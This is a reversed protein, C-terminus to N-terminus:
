EPTEPTQVRSSSPSTSLSEPRHSSSSPAPVSPALGSVLISIFGSTDAFYFGSIPILNSQANNDQTNRCQAFQTGNAVTCPSGTTASFFYRLRAFMVDNDVTSDLNVNSSMIRYGVGALVPIDDLRMYPTETTIAGVSLASTRRGRKIIKQNNAELSLVRTDLDNVANRMPIGYLSSSIPQGPVPVQITYSAM